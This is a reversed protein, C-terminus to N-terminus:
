PKGMEERWVTATVEAPLSEEALAFSAAASVKSSVNSDMLRGLSARRSDLCSIVGPPNSSHMPPRRSPSISSRSKSGFPDDHAFCTQPTLPVEDQQAYTPLDAPRRASIGSSISYHARNSHPPATRNTQSIHPHKLAM